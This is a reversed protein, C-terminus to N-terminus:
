CLIATHWTALFLGSLFFLDALFTQFNAMQPPIESVAMVGTTLYTILRVLVDQSITRNGVQLGRLHPLLRPLLQGDGEVGAEM